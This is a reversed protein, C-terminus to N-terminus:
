TYGIEPVSGTESESCPGTGPFPVARVLTLRDRERAFLGKVGFFSPKKAFFHHFGVAKYILCSISTVEQFPLMGLPLCEHFNNFFDSITDPVMVQKQRQETANVGTTVKSNLEAPAIAMDPVAGPTSLCVILM